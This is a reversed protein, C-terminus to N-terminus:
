ENEKFSGKIPYSKANGQHQSTEYTKPWEQLGSKSQLHAFQRGGCRSNLYKKSYCSSVSFLRVSLQLLGSTQAGDVQGSGSLKRLRPERPLLRGRCTQSDAGRILPGASVHGAVNSGWTDRLGCLGPEKNQHSITDPARQQEGLFLYLNVTMLPWILACLRLCQNRRPLSPLPPPASFSVNQPPFENWPWRLYSWSIQSTSLTSGKGLIFKSLLLNYINIESIFQWDWPTLNNRDLQQSPVLSNLIVSLSSPTNRNPLEWFLKIRNTITTWNWWIAASIAEASFFSIFQSKVEPDSSRCVSFM